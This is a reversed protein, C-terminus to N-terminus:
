FGPRFRTLYHPVIEDMGKPSIGLEKLGLANEHVVSNSQLLEVQDITLLPKPLVQAFFGMLKAIPVPIDISIGQRDIWLFMKEILQKFTAVDPGGLEFCKGQHEPNKLAQLIAKAVDDVYIPQFTSSSGVLPVLPILSALAAFRNFFHDEPGFIISPRLLTAKSFATLVEQEGLAKTRAYLSPSRLCAGLASIHVFAKLNQTHAATAIVKATNVHANEFTQTGKEFLIGILNVCATCGQLHKEVNKLSFDQVQLPVIQGVDGMSVLPRPDQFSRSLVRVRVGMRALHQVLYKGIFGSGGFVAITDNRGFEIM